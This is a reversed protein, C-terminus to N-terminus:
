IEEIRIIFAARVNKPRTENAVRITEDHLQKAVAGINASTTSINASAPEVNVSDASTMSIKNMCWYAHDDKTANRQPPTDKAWTGTADSKGNHYIGTVYNGCDDAGIWISKTSNNNKKQLLQSCSTQRQSLAWYGLLLM